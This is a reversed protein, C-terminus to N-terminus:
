YGFFISWWNISNLFVIIPSLFGAIFILTATKTIKLSIRCKEITINDIADGLKYYNIKELQIKLAGAIASMPLGANLSETKRGDRKCIAISKKWDQKLILSSIVLFVISVRAPLLNMVTDMKASMWGMNKYYNDKYGIMSDLTNVVRFMIAGPINLIGFYFLPSLIGDVFSEAICEVCASLIKEESLTKTDRSVIKSLDLRAREIDKREIDMLIDNIHKDMSKISFMSKLIFTSLLIFAIIGLSHLTSVLALYSLIGITSTLSIALISGHIKENLGNHAKDNGRKKIKCTFFNITKGIWVVPHIRNPPEGVLYDFSVSFCIISIIIEQLPYQTM